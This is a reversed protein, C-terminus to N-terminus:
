LLRADQLAARLAEREGLRGGGTEHVEHVHRARRAQGILERQDAASHALGPPEDDICAAAGDQRAHAGDLGGGAADIREPRLTESWM